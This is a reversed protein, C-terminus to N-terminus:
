EYRFSQGPATAFFDEINKDAQYAPAYSRQAQRIQAATADNPVYRYAEFQSQATSDGPRQLEDTLTIVIPMRKRMRVEGNGITLSLATDARDFSALELHERNMANLPNVNPNPRFGGQSRDVDLKETELGGMLFTKNYLSKWVSANAGSAELEVAELNQRKDEETPVYEASKPGKMGYWAAGGLAVLPLYAGVAAM